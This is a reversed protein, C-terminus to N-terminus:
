VASTSSFGADAEPFPPLNTPLAGPDNTTVIPCISSPPSSQSAARTWGSRALNERKGAGPVIATRRAADASAIAQKSTAIAGKSTAMPKVAARDSARGTQRAVVRTERVVVGLRELVDEPISTYTAGTDVLAELEIFQQGQLDAVGLPGTLTGM